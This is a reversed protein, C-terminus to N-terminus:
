GHSGQTPSPLFLCLFSSPLPPAPPQPDLPFKSTPFQIIFKISNECM